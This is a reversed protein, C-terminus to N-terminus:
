RTPVWSTTAPCAQAEVGMGSMLLPSIAANAPDSRGRIGEAILFTGLILLKCEGATAKFSPPRHQYSHASGDRHPNRMDTTGDMSGAGPRM